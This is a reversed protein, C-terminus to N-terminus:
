HKLEAELLRNSFLKKLSIETKSIIPIELSINKLSLILKKRKYAM